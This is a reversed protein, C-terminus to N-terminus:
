GQLKPEEELKIKQFYRKGESDKACIYVRNLDCINKYLERYYSASYGKTFREGPKIGNTEGKISCYQLLEKPHDSKGEVIGLYDIFIERNGSNVAVMEFSDFNGERYYGEVYMRLKKKYPMKAARISVILAIISLIIGIISFWESIIWKIINM